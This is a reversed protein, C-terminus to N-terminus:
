VDTKLVGHLLTEIMATPVDGDALDPLPLLAAGLFFRMWDAAAQNPDIDRRIVGSQQGDVIAPAMRDVAESLAAQLIAIEEEEVKEALGSLVIRATDSDDRLTAQFRNAFGLLRNVVYIPSQEGDAEEVPFLSALWHDAIAKLFDAKQRFCRTLTSRSVDAHDAIQEISVASYGFQAFLARASQLYISKRDVRSKGTRRAPM